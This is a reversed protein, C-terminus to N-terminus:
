KILMTDIKVGAYHIVEVKNKLRKKNIRGLISDCMILTKSAENRRQRLIPSSARSSNRAASSYSVNGPRMPQDPEVTTASFNVTVQHIGDNDPIVVPATYSAQYERFEITKKVLFDIKLSASTLQDQLSRNFDRSAAFQNNIEILMMHAADYCFWCFPM